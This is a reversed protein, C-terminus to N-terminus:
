KATKLTAKWSRYENNPKKVKKVTPECNIVPVISAKLRIGSGIITGITLSSSSKSSRYM